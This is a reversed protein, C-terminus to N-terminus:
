VCEISRGADPVTARVLALDGFKNGAKTGCLGGIGFQGLPDAIVVIVEGVVSSVPVIGLEALSMQENAGAHNFRAPLRTM